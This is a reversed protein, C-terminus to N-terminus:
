VAAPEMYRLHRLVELASIVGILVGHNDVVFLRHIKRGLLDDVVTGALADAAVTFVFPTMVDRVRTRAPVANLTSKERNHVLLDLQSVVGIPRGAADIVPAGSIGKEVFFAAAEEVPADAHISLPNTSMLDSATEARLILCSTWAHKPRKSM